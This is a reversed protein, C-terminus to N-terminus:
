VDRIDCVRIDALDDLELRRLGTSGWIGRDVANDLLTRLSSELERGM